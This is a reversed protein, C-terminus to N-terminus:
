KEGEASSFPKKVLIVLRFFWFIFVVFVALATFVGQVEFHQDLKQGVYIFVGLLIVVEFVLAILLAATKKM